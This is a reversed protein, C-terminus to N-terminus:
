PRSIQLVDMFPPALVITFVHEMMQQHLPSEKDKVDVVTSRGSVPTIPSGRDVTVHTACVQRILDIGRPVQDCLMANICFM